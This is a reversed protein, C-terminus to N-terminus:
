NQGMFTFDGTKFDLTGAQSSDFNILVCSNTRGSTMWSVPKGIHIIMPHPTRYPELKADVFPDRHWLIKGDPSIATVHRGDSEVYFIIGSDADKYTQPGRFPHLGPEIYTVKTGVSNTFTVGDGILTLTVLAFCLTM